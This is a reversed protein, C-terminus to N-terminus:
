ILELYLDFLEKRLQDNITFLRRRSNGATIGLKGAIEKHDYGCQRLEFIEQDTVSLTALADEIRKTLLPACPTCKGSDEMNDVGFDSFYFWRHFTETRRRYNQATYYIVKYAFTWLGSSFSFKCKLQKLTENLAEQTIDKLDSQNHIHKRCLNTAKPLLESYVSSVASDESMMAGLIRAKEQLSDLSSGNSIFSDFGFSDLACESEDSSRLTGSGAIRVSHITEIEQDQLLNKVAEIEYPFRWDTIVFYESNSDKIKAVVKKVWCTNGFEAKYRAGITLLLDRPTQIEGCIFMPTDKASRSHFCKLPLNSEVSAVEKLADAFSVREWASGLMEAFTDKGAGAKGSLMVITKKM